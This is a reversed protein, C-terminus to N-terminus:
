MTEFIRYKLGIQLWINNITSPPGAIAATNSLGVNARAYIGLQGPLDLDVSGAIGIEPDSEPEYETEIEGIKTTGDVLISLQPGLEFSVTENAKFTLLLPLDIYTLRTEIEPSSPSNALKFNSGRTAFNAETKVGILGSTRLRFFAGAHFGSIFSPELEDYDSLIYALDGGAKIGLSVFQAQSSLSLLLIGLSSLLFNKM